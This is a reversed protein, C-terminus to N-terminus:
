FLTGSTQRSAQQIVRSQMVYEEEEVEKEEEEEVMSALGGWDASPASDSSADSFGSDQSCSMDPVVSGGNEQRHVPGLVPSIPGCSGTPSVAQLSRLPPPPGPVKVVSALSATVATCHADRTATPVLTTTCYADGVASVHATSAPPPCPMPDIFIHLLSCVWEEEEGESNTNETRVADDMTKIDTVNHAAGIKLKYLPPPPM